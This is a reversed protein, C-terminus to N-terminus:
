GRNRFQVWTQRRILATTRSHRPAELVVRMRAANPVLLPDTLQVGDATFYECLLGSVPFAVPAPATGAQWRIYLTDSAVFVLVDELPGTVNGDAPNFDSVIRVNNFVGNNLPDPNLTPGSIAFPNAGAGRLLSTLASEAVRLADEARAVERQRIHGRQMSLLAGIIGAFVIGLVVLTILLEILTAGSRRRLTM